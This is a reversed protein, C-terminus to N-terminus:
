PKRVGRGGTRATRALNEANSNVYFRDSTQARQSTYQWNGGRVIVERIMTNSPWNATNYNGSFNLAGDGNLGNFGLAPGSVDSGVSVCQEWVNGSMDMIGWASAGAGERSTIGSAAFGTRLPGLSTSAGAGVACLGAGAVSSAEFPGGADTLSNSAAQLVTASGWARENLMPNEVGRVAKEFELETMPRLATWDLYALLDAWSLFNCAINDGDGYTGDGNLDTAYVAPTGSVSPTQIVISNRNQNATSTLALTGAAASPPNATRTIQQVLPLTNLFTAYQQQSIEYRMCYFGAWGKPFAAPIAANNSGGGTSTNHINSQAIAAESIILRPSNNQPWSGFSSTSHSANDWTGDGVRFDGQPVWVMELGFIQFNVTAFAAIPTAFALTVTGSQNGGGLTNRRIFVGKGDTSAEVILGTGGSVSHNASATSLDVHAWMQSGACDQAKVFVWVADYNYGPIFWSNEWAINFQIASASTVSMNTIQVNNAFASTHVLLCVMLIATKEFLKKITM